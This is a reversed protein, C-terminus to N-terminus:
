GNDDSGDYWEPKAERLWQEAAYGLQRPLSGALKKQMVDSVNGSQPLVVIDDLQISDSLLDKKSRFYAESAIAEARSEAKLIVPERKGSKKNPSHPLYAWYYRTTAQKISPM